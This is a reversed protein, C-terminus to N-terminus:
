PESWDFGPLQTGILYLHEIVESEEDKSLQSESRPVTKGEGAHEIYIQPYFSMGKIWEKMNPDGTFERLDGIM